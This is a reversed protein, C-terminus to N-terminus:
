LAEFPRVKGTATNVIFVAPGDVLSGSPSYADFVASLEDKRLKPETIYAFQYRWGRLDLGEVYAEALARADEASIRLGKKGM